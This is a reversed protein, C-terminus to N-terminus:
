RPRSSILINIRTEKNVVQDQGNNKNVVKKQQRLALDVLVPSEIKVDEVSVESVGPAPVLVLM